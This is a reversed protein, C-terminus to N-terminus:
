EPSGPSFARARKRVLWVPDEHDSVRAGMRAEIEVELGIEGSWGDEFSGLAAFVARHVVTRLEALERELGHVSM